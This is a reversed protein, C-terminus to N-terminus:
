MGPPGTPAAAPPAQPAGQQPAADDADGDNAPAPGANGTSMNQMMHQVMAQDNASIHEEPAHHEPHTFHHTHVVGGSKAKRSVIHQIIKKPTKGRGALAETAKDM